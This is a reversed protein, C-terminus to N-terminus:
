AVEREAPAVGLAMGVQAPKLAALEDCLREYEALVGLWAKEWGQVPIGNLMAEGIKDYGNRLRVELAAIREMLSEM